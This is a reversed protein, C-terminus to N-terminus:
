LILKRDFFQADGEKLQSVEKSLRKFIHRQPLDTCNESEAPITTHPIGGSQFLFVFILAGFTSFLWHATSM